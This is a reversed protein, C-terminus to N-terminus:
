TSTIVERPKYDADLIFIMDYGRDHPIAAAFHQGFRVVLLSVSWPPSTSEAEVARTVADCVISDTVVTVLATDSITVGLRGRLTAHRPEHVLRQVEARLRAMQEGAPQCARVKAEARIAGLAVALVAITSAALVRRASGSIV